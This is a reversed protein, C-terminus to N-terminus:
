ALRTILEMCQRAATDWNYNRAKELGATIMTARLSEDKYVQMMYAAISTHDEPDAYMAADAAVEEMASGASTIVATGAQMAEAVPLGFGEYLSPYVLAYAAGMLAAQETEPLYGTLIVEDRYKYRSLSETFSAYQWALRGCIVLKLSSRQRKKFVSFAKLLQMLNKRPHISGTYFFYEHGGTYKEKVAVKEEWNLPHFADRVGNLIVSIKNSADPYHKCIDNKSFQSVTLIGTAKRVFKPLQNRYYALQTRPIGKPFHIFALDHLAMLQPVPCRLSCFGDPSFFVDAKYKKLLYPLRIDYWFKWLVPHRAPPGALVPTVNSGYIFRQDWPRDFFFIFEHEPYLATIRSFLEHIYYGYGELYDHLLFRTNVAIRMPDFTIGRQNIVM